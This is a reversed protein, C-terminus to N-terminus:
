FKYQVYSSFNSPKRILIIRNKIQIIYIIMKRNCTGCLFSLLGSSCGYLHINLLFNMTLIQFQKSM